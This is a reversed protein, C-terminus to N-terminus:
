GIRHRLARAVDGAIDDQLKLIDGSPRDYSRAWAVFGDDARILRVAVRLETGAKRISGDLVYAVHLAKAVDAIRARRGKFYFSSTPPSVKLGPNQSLRDILEETVGDAVYEESMSGSTLDLFPLVAVSRSQPVPSPAIVTGFQMKALVGVAIAIVLLAAAAAFWLTRLPEGKRDGWFAISPTETWESVPAILRYGRRPVTAIYEPQKPNDGLLRRLSAVAQYVSDQSVTVDPWVKDLLENTTVLQGARDAL